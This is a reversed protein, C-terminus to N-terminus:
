SSACLGTYASHTGRLVPRVFHIKGCASRTRVADKSAEHSGSHMVHLASQETSGDGLSGSSSSTGLIARLNTHPDGNQRVDQVEIGQAEDQLINRCCTALGRRM